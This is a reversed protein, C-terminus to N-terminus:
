AYESLLERKAEPSLQDISHSTLFYGNIYIEVEDPKGTERDKIVELHIDPTM